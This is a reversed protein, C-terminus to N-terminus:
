LGKHFAATLNAWPGPSVANLFGIVPGASQQARTALPWVVAGGLTVIFERRQIHIAMHGERPPRDMCRLPRYWAKSFSRVIGKANRFDPTAWTEQPDFGAFSVVLSRHGTRGSASMRYPATM